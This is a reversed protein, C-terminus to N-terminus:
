AADRTVAQQGVKNSRSQQGIPTPIETLPEKADGPSATRQIPNPLRPARDPLSRRRGYKERWRVHRGRSVVERVGYGAAFGFLLLTILLLVTLM